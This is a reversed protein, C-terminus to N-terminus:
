LNKLFEDFVMHAEEQTMRGYAVLTALEGAKSFVESLINTLLKPVLENTLKKALEKQADTLM